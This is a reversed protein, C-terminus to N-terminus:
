ITRATASFERRSTKSPISGSTSLHIVSLDKPWKAGLRGRALKMTVSGITPMENCIRKMLRVITRLLELLAILLDIQPHSPLYPISSLM